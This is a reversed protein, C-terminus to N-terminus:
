KESWNYNFITFMNLWIFDMSTEEGLHDFLNSSFDPTSHEHVLKLYDGLVLVGLQKTPSFFTDSVLKLKMQDLFIYSENVM